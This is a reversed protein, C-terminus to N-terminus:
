MKTKPNPCIQEKPIIVKPTLISFNTTNITPNIKIPMVVKGNIGKDNSYPDLIM